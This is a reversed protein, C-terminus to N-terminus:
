EPLRFEQGGLLSGAPRWREPKRAGRRVDHNVPIEAGNRWKSTSTSHRQAAEPRDQELAGARAEGRQRVRAQGQGAGIKCDGTEGSEARRRGAPQQLAIRGTVTEPRRAPQPMEQCGRFLKTLDPPRAACSPGATNASRGPELDARSLTM